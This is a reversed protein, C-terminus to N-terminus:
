RKSKRSGIGLRGLNPLSSKQRGTGGLISSGGSGSGGRQQVGVDVSNGRAGAVNGGGGGGGISGAGIGGGSFGGSGSGGGAGGAGGTARSSDGPGGGGGVGPGVTGRDRSSRIQDSTAAASLAATLSPNQLGTRLVGDQDVQRQSAARQARRAKEQM